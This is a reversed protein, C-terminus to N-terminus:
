FKPPRWFSITSEIENQVLLPSIVEVSPLNIKPITYTPTQALTQCCACFCFPSCIEIDESHEGDQDQQIISHCDANGVHADACPMFTLIMVYISLIVTLFKM